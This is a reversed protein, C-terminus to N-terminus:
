PARAGKPAAPANRRPAAPANGRPSPSSGSRPLTEWFHREAVMAAGLAEDRSGYPASDIRLGALMEPIVRQRVRLLVPDRLFDWLVSVPGGLLLTRPNYLEVLAACADGVVLGLDYLTSRALRDDARAAELIRQLDLADGAVRQLSSIVGEGLRRRFRRLISPQSVEMELCGVNGCPCRDGEDAVRLHGVEGALGSAGRYLAGNLVIGAGVGDALYLLVLPEAGNGGGRVRERWAICRAPDEAVVPVEFTKELMARLDIHEIGTVQLGHLWVGRTTDVMGPVAIGLALLRRSAFAADRLLAELERSVERVIDGLHDEARASLSIERSREALVELSTDVALIRFASTEVSVGVTFGFDPAIRYLSSPRGGRSSTKGAQLIAGSALLENLQATVSVSSLGTFRSIESRTPSELFHLAQLLLAERSKLHM